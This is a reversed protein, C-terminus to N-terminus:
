STERFLTTQFCVNTRDMFLTSIELTLDTQPCKVFLVVQFLVDETDMFFYPIVGTGLAGIASFGRSMKSAMNGTAM